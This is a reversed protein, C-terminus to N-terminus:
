LQEYDVNELIWNDDQYSINYIVRVHGSLENEIEQTVRYTTDSPQEVQYDEELNIRTDGGTPRIYLGESADSTIDEEVIFSEFLYNVRTESLTDSVDNIIEEKSDYHALRHSEGEVTELIRDQVAHYENLLDEINPESPSNTQEESESQESNSEDSNSENEDQQQESRSVTMSQDSFNVTIAEISDYEFVTNGIDDVLADQDIDGANDLNITLMQEEAEFGQYNVSSYDDNILQSLSLDLQVQKAGLLSQNEGYTTSVSSGDVAIAFSASQGEMGADQIDILWYGEESLLEVNSVVKVTYDEITRLASALAEQQSMDSQESEEVVELHDAEGQSPYSEALDSHWVRVEDGLQVDEEVDSYWTAPYQGSENQESGTVLIRTDEEEVVYGEVDPDGEPATMTEEEGENATNPSDDTALSAFITFMLLLAAALPIIVKLPFMPQKEKRKPENLKALVQKRDDNTFSTQNRYTERLDKLKQDM